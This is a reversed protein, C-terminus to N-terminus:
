AARGLSVPFTERGRLIIRANYTPEAALALDPFRRVLRTIAVEGEMRALAAGLCHHIGSGFSVHRAADSRTVDLQDASHGWFAPDRNASGLATLVMEDAAVEVGGVVTDRTLRRGSTQVPSDFRLLEETATEDDVQGSRVLELQEPHRLLAHTGNGILNVTTEHGAVFLLGVMSLLEDGDLRDGEEEVQILDTLLDDAPDRRKWEIADLLYSDMREGAAVAAEAQEPTMFPELTRTLAGSWARMRAMDADPLGLMRHIVTFPVVFAYDAIMDIHDRGALDDLLDEVIAETQTRMRGVARPTFTRQVLKRLRTHDPPDLGLISPAREARRRELALMHEPMEGSGDFRRVSTTPDRLVQWADDYRTVVLPGLPTRHVPDEARLRAYHPYPNVLFDPDLPNWSPGADM